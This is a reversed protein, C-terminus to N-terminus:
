LQLIGDGSYRGTTPRLGAIGCFAAPIRSSGGTDSGLGADALGGAIAAATGGSSGGALHGPRIPNDVRGSWPNDSTIGLALEHMNTHGVITGGALRLAAVVPADAAAPTDPLAPCAARTRMGAIAINDKIALTMGALPGAPEPAPSTEVKQVFARYEDLAEVPPPQEYAEM